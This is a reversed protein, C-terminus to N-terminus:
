PGVVLSVVAVLLCLGGLVVLTLVLAGPLPYRGSRYAALGADTVKDPNYAVAVRDGRQYPPCRTPGCEGLRLQTRIDAGDVQYRVAASMTSTRQGTEEERFPGQHLEEIVATTTVARRASATQQAYAWGALVLLVLGILLPPLVIRRRRARWAPNTSIEGAM